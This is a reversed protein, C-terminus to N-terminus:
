SALVTLSLLLTDAFTFNNTLMYITRSCFHVYTGDNEKYRWLPDAMLSEVTPLTDDAPRHLGNDGGRSLNSDEVTFDEALVTDDLEAYKQSTQPRVSRDILPDSLNKGVRNSKSRQKHYAKRRQQRSLAGFKTLRATAAHLLHSTSASSAPPPSAMTSDTDITIPQYHCVITAEDRHPLTSTTSQPLPTNSSSPSFEPSHTTWTPSEDDIADEEYTAHLLLPM